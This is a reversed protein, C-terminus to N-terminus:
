RVPLAVYGQRTGVKKVKGLRIALKLPRFLNTRHCGLAAAIERALAQTGRERLFRVAERFLGPSPIDEDTLPITANVGLDGRLEIAGDWVWARGLGVRTRQLTVQKL